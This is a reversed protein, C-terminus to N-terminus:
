EKESRADLILRRVRLQKIELVGNVVHELWAM